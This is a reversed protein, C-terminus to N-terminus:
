GGVRRNGRRAALRECNSAERVGIRTASLGQDVDIEVHRAADIAQEPGVAGSLGCKHPDKAVKCRGLPPLTRNSPM